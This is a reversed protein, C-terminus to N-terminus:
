SLAASMVVWARRRISPAVGAQLMQERWARPAQPENFRVAPIAVVDLAHRLPPRWAGTATRTAKGLIHRDAAWRYQQFSRPALGGQNRPHADLEFYLEIVEGIMRAEAENAEKADLDLLFRRLSDRGRREATVYDHMWADAHEVTPFSRSRERKDHDYFGVTYSKRGSKAVYPWASRKRWPRAMRQAEQLFAPKMSFLV